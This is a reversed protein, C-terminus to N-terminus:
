VKDGKEMMMTAYTFGAYNIMDVLTDELSEFNNPSGKLISVLRLAKGYLLGAYYNDLKIYDEYSVTNGNYTANKKAQIAVAKNIAEKYHRIFKKDFEPQVLDVQDASKIILDKKM